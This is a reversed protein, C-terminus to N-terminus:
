CCQSPSCRRWLRSAVDRGLLDLIGAELFKARRHLIAEIAENVGSCLLSFLFYILILGIALQLAGSTSM